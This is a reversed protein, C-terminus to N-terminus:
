DWRLRYLMADRGNEIVVGVSSSCGSTWGVTNWKGRKINEACWEKIENLKNSTFNRIRLQHWNPYEDAIRAPFALDEWLDEEFIYDDDDDDDEDLDDIETSPINTM